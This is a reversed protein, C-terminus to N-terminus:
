VQRSNSLASLLLQGQADGLDVGDVLCQGEGGADAFSCYIAFILIDLSPIQHNNRGARLVLEDVGARGRQYSGVKTTIEGNDDRHDAVVM